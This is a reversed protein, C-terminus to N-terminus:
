WENRTRQVDGIEDSGQQDLHRGEEGERTIVCELDPRQAFLEYIRAKRM